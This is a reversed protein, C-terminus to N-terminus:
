VEICRLPGNILLDAVQYFMDFSIGVGEKFHDFEIFLTKCHAYDLMLEINMTIPEEYYLFRGLDIIQPVFLCIYTFDLLCSGNFDYETGGNVKDTDDLPANSETSCMVEMFVMSDLSEAVDYHTLYILGTGTIPIGVYTDQVNGKEIDATLRDLYSQIRRTYFEDRLDGVHGKAFEGPSNIDLAWYKGHIYIYAKRDYVYYAVHQSKRYHRMHYQGREVQEVKSISAELFDDTDVVIGFEKLFEPLEVPGDIMWTTTKDKTKIDVRAIVPFRLATIVQATYYCRGISYLMVAASCRSFVDDIEVTRSAMNINDIPDDDSILGIYYTLTLPEVKEEFHEPTLIAYTDSRLRSHDEILVAAIDDRHKRFKNFIKEEKEDPAYMKTTGDKMLFIM